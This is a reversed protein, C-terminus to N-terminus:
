LVEVPSDTNDLELDLPVSIEDVLPDHSGEPGHVAWAPAAMSLALGTAAATTTVATVLKSM